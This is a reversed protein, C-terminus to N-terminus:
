ACDRQRARHRARKEGRFPAQAGSGDRKLLSKCAAAGAILTTSVTWTVGSRGRQNPSAPSGPAVWFAPTSLVQRRILWWCEFRCHSVSSPRISAIPRPLWGYCQESRRANHSRDDLTRVICCFAGRELGFRRQSLASRFATREDRNGTIAGEFSIQAQFTLRM